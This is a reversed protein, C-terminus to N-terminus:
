GAGGHARHLWYGAALPLAAVLFLVGDAAGGDVLLMGVIGAVSLLALAIVLSMALRGTLARPGTM